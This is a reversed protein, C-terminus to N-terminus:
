FSRFSNHIDAKGPVRTLIIVRSDVNRKDEIIDAAMGRRNKFSRDCIALTMGKKIAHILIDLGKNIVVQEVAWLEDEHIWGKWTLQPPASQM